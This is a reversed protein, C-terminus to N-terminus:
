GNDRGEAALAAPEVYAPDVNRSIHAILDNDEGEIDVGYNEIMDLLQQCYGRLTVPDSELVHQVPAPTVPRVEGTARGEDDRVAEYGKPVEFTRRQAPPSAQISERIAGAINDHLGPTPQRDTM